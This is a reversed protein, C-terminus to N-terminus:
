RELKAARRKQAIFAKVGMPKAPLQRVQERAAALRSIPREVRSPQLIRLPQDDATPTIRQYLTATTFLSGKPMRKKDVPRWGRPGLLRHVWRGVHQKETNSLERVEAEIREAVALLAPRGASSYAEMRRIATPDCIIPRIRGGKTSNEFQSFSM